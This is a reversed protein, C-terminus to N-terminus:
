RYKESELNQGDMKGAYRFGGKKHLFIIMTVRVEARRVKGKKGQGATASCINLGQKKGNEM